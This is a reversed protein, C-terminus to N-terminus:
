LKNGYRPMAELIGQDTFQTGFTSTWVTKICSLPGPYDLEIGLSSFNLNSYGKWTSRGAHWAVINFPVLQTIAGNRDIVLHASVQSTKSTLWAVASAASPGGTYHIVLFKPQVRGETNPSPIFPYPTGDDSCLRYNVIKM